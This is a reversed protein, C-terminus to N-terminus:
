AAINESFIITVMTGAGSSFSAQGGMQRALNKVLRVGLSNKKEFDEPLGNGDDAIQLKYRNQAVEDLSINIQGGTKNVFAYKCSNTIVENLILGISISTDLSFSIKGTETVSVNINKGDPNNSVLIGAALDNIYEKLYVHVVDQTEYLKNHVLAMSKIRQQAQQLAELLRPDEYEKFQLYLLSSIIQLNNKVRHHIEKLFVEKERNSQELVLATKQKNRYSRWFAFATAVSILLGAAIAWQIIRQRQAQESLNEIQKEKQKTGFQIDSQNITKNVENDRYAKYDDIQKQKYELAKPYNGVGEYVTGWMEDLSVEDEKSYNIKHSLDTALRAYHVASDANGDHSYGIALARWSDVYEYTINNAATIKLAMRAPLLSERYKKLKQLLFAHVQYFTAQGDPDNLEIAKKLGVDIYHLTSDYQKLELFEQSLCINATNIVHDAEDTGSGAHKEALAYEIAKEHYGIATKLQDMMFYLNGLKLNALGMKNKLGASDALTIIKQSYLIANGYQKNRSFYDVAVSYVKIHTDADNTKFTMSLASDLWNVENQSDGLFQYLGSLRICLKAKVEAAQQIHPALFNYAQKYYKVAQAPNNGAYVDGLEAFKACKESDTSSLTFTHMVSDAADRSQSFGQISYFLLILLFLYRM